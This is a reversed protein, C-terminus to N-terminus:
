VEIRLFIIFSGTFFFLLPFFYLTYAGKNYCSLTQVAIISGGQHFTVSLLCLFLLCVPLVFLGTYWTIGGASIGKINRGGGTLSFFQDSESMLRALCQYVTIKRLFNFNRNLLFHGYMYLSSLSFSFFGSIITKSVM